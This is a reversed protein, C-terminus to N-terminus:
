PDGGEIEFAPATTTPYTGFGLTPRPGAEAAAVAARAIAYATALALPTRLGCAALVSLAGVVCLLRRRHAHRGRSSDNM